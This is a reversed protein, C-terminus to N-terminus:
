AAVQQPIRTEECLQEWKLKEYDEPLLFDPDCYSRWSFCHCDLCLIESEWKKKGRCWTQIFHHEKTHDSGCQLCARFDDNPKWRASWEEVTMIKFGSGMSPNIEVPDGSMIKRWEARHVIARPDNNVDEEIEARLNQCYANAANFDAVEVVEQKSM